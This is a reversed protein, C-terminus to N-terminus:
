LNSGVIYGSTWAWQLNYGGCKGDVDCIEGCFYLNKIAKYELNSSLNKLCIGGSFVQNNDYNDIVHFTLNKILFAINKLTSDNLTKCSKTEDLSLKNLIYYGIQRNFLGDFFHNIDINLKSARNKLYEYLENKNLNPMLDISIEGEFKNNRAFLTSLNFICMGSLGHEKFLVEGVEYDTNGNSDKAYVKVNDIRINQLNKLNEKTKLACLSPSFTDYQVNFNNLLNINNGGLAFILKKCKFYDKNTTICFFDNEYKIETIENELYCPIELRCFENEIVEVVSKASNSIPYIWGNQNIVELGISNFFKLTNEYSFISFFNTIDTNYVNKNEYFTNTLNCRGNGTVLIKKAIKSNKDIVAIDINRRKAQIACISGSAGAGLIITEFIKM